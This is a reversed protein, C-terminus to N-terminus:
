PNINCERLFVQEFNVYNSWYKRYKSVGIELWPKLNGNYHIVSARRIDKENVNPNYGLGLQHWSRDLPFTRNWFTVLGAPLTGLKWLLRNENLKQWTHYVETINQKRWESLDFINMGYAWGCAHPDFNKAIIPNSFNLYKDFRHFTERCTEVAGNVKGKLDILWLASLDRQVVTDDDLFLVKNLKPFIEPLYFRLHNLISLYKPNRFKPNEDRRTQGSRFYYDIMFRSELQRLVPSYSSNLWTFEEINQVQIAAEGLPNALFWMRMAAYNLRDTVVHFVHNEPKKAHHLTSNVVVAAALVNDSFLAYHYLNPDELKELYPFKKNNSNTSYYENTLRLTLCHLGKPLSKAAVQALYNAMRKHAQLQQETSHLASRLKNVAGSCNDHIKRVKVLTQEMARIKSHVSNLYYFILDFHETKQPLQRDSTADVLARQIDRMRTRLERGFGHNGRSAFFGLYTKARRLQDKILCITADPSTAFQGASRNTAQVNNSARTQHDRLHADGTQESSSHATSEETSSSNLNGTTHKGSMNNRAVEKSGDKHEVDIAHPLEKDVSRANQSEATSDVAQDSGDGRREKGVVEKIIGDKGLQDSDNGVLIEHANRSESEERLPDSKESIRSRSAAEVVQWHDTASLVRNKHERLREITSDVFSMCLFKGVCAAAAAAAASLVLPPPFAGTSDPLHSVSVPAGGYLVLPALVSTLLLLLLAGRFRRRGRAAM